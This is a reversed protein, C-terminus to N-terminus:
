AYDLALAVMPVEDWRMPIVHASFLDHGAVRTAEPPDLLEAALRNALRRRAQRPDSDAWGSSWGDPLPGATATNHVEFAIIGRAGLSPRREAESTADGAVPSNCHGQLGNFVM